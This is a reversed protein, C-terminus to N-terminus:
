KLLKKYTLRYEITLSVSESCTEANAVLAVGSGCEMEGRSDYNFMLNTKKYSVIM